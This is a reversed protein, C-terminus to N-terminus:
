DAHFPGEYIRFTLRSLAVPGVGKLSLETALEYKGAALADTLVDARVTLRGHDGRALRLPKGGRLIVHTISFPARARLERGVRCEVPLSKRHDPLETTEAAVLFPDDTALEFRADDVFHISPKGTPLTNATMIRIDAREADASIDALIEGRVWEGTDAHIKHEHHVIVKRGKWQRLSLTVPDGDAHPATQLMAWASFRIAKGRILNVPLRQGLMLVRGVEAARSSDIKIAARGGHPADASRVLTRAAVERDNGKKGWYGRSWGSVWGKREEEFGGNRLLNASTTKVVKALNARLTEESPPKWAVAGGYSAAIMAAVLLCGIVRGDRMRKGESLESWQRQSGVM